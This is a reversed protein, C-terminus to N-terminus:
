DAVMNYTSNVTIISLRKHLTEWATPNLVPLTLPALRQHVTESVYVKPHCFFWVCFCAPGVTSARPLSCM